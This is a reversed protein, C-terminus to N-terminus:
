PQHLPEAGPVLLAPTLQWEPGACGACACALACSCPSLVLFCCTLTSPAVCQPQWMVTLRGHATKTCTGSPATINTKLYMNCPVCVGPTPYPQDASCTWACAGLVPQCCGVQLVARVPAECVAHQGEQQQPQAAEIRVWSDGDLGLRALAAQLGFWCLPVRGAKPRLDDKSCRPRWVATRGPLWVAEGILSCGRCAAGAHM